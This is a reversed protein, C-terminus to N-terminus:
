SIHSPPVPTCACECSPVKSFIVGNLDRIHSMLVKIRFPALPILVMALIFSTCSLLWSVDPLEDDFTIERPQFRVLLVRFDALLSANDSFQGFQFLGISADVVCFGINLTDEEGPIVRLSMLLDASPVFEVDQAPDGKSYNQELVGMTRTGKSLMSVIERRVCKDKKGKKSANRAQTILPSLQLCAGVITM